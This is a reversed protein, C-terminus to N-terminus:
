AISFLIGKHFTLTKGDASTCTGDVGQGGVGSVQYSGAILNGTTRIQGTINVSPGTFNGNGDIVPVGNGQIYLGGSAGTGFTMAQQSIIAANCNIGATSVFQGSTNIVQTSGVLYQGGQVQGSTILNAAQLGGLAFVAGAQSVGFSQNNSENYLSFYAAGLTATGSALTVNQFGNSANKMALLGWFPTQESGNPDGNYTVLAVMRATNVGNLILGRNILMSGHNQPSANDRTISIGAFQVAPVGPDTGYVDYGFKLTYPSSTTGGGNQPYSIVFSNINRLQVLGSETTSSTTSRKALIRWDALSQGGVAFETFWAGAIDAVDGPSVLPSGTANYILRSGIRGVELGTNDRISIYPAYNSGGSYQFGGIIAVGANTVYIPSNVPSSGGIYLEKFWAGYVSHAAPTDPTGISDQEGVWGVLQNSANFVGIQGNQNGAFSSAATGTGGGVQLISGVHIKGANVVGVTFDNPSGDWNFETTNFWDTPMRSTLLQGVLPTFAITVKPTVTILISNRHDQQDRSVFWFDFSTAAPAPEWPTWYDTVNKPIDWWTSTGTTPNDGARLRAVSIGGFSNSAPAAWGSFHWRVMILGDSNQQQEFAVAPTGGVVPSFETGQGGAGGLGFTWTATPTHAQIASPDDTLQGNQYVGLAAITWSAGQTWAIVELTVKDVPLSVDGPPIMMAPAPSVRWFEAGGYLTSVPPMWSADIHAYITGDPQPDYRPNTLTFGTVDPLTPYVLSIDFSPTVGKQISNVGGASASCFWVTIDVTRAPFTSTWSAPQHTTLFPGAEQKNDESTYQYVIQVGTFPKLGPPLPLTDDPETFSFTLLFSPPATELHFVSTVNPDTVLWAFEMGSTYGSAKAPVLIQINPTPNPLNARVVSSQVVKNYAQLYVRIYRDVVQGDVKFDAPSTTVETIHKATWEGAMQTTDDMTVTGDMPAVPTASMDPDELYVSVGQFNTANATAAATWFVQIEEEGDYLETVTFAGPLPHTADGITVPPADPPVYPQGGGGSGGGGMNIYAPSVGQAPIRIYATPSADDLAISTSGDPLLFDATTPDVQITVTNGDGMSTKHVEYPANPTQAFPLLTVVINDNTTDFRLLRDTIKVTYNTPM